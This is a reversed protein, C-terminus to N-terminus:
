SESGEEAEPLVVPTEISAKVKTQLEQARQKTTRALDEARVRLEELAEDARVSADELAKEAKLRADHSIDVARDRLEISKEKIITRTEEGSKPASLLAAVAGVVGGLMLGAFFIGFDDNKNSM